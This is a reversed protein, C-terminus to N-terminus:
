KNFAIMLDGILNTPDSVNELLLKGKTFPKWIPGTRIELEWLFFDRDTSTCLRYNGLELIHRESLEARQKIQISPARLAKGQICVVRIYQDTETLSVEGTFGWRVWFDRTKQEIKRAHKKGIETKPFRYSQETKAMRARYGHKSCWEGAADQFRDLVSSFPEVTAGYGHKKLVLKLIDLSDKHIRTTPFGISKLIRYTKRDAPIFGTKYGVLKLQEQM